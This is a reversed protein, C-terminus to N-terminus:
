RRYKNPVPGSPAPGAGRGSPPVVRVPAGAEPEDTPFGGAYDTLYDEGDAQGTIRNIQSAYSRRVNDYQTKGAAFKAAITKKMNQRSQPTLFPTNSFIRAANFGFSEAWSQAYKQVTAYEGERVVSDPDMAKAFAYILAQDDAPNTTNVDLGNAFSVAEAMKQTTKVIPLSDWGKARSDVRRAVAPPLGKDSATPASAVRDDAQGMERQVRLLRQYAETDGNALAEAAQVQLSRTEPRPATPAVAGRQPAGANREFGARRELESYPIPKEEGEMAVSFNPADTGYLKNVEELKKRAAKIQMDSPSVTLMVHQEFAGPDLGMAQAQASYLRAVHSAAEPTPASALAAEFNKLLVQQQTMRQNKGAQELQARRYEDQSRAQGSLREEQSAMRADQASLRGQQQKLRRARQFGRMLAGVAGMGGKAAIPLLALLPAFEKANFGGQQPSPVFPPTGGAGVDLPSAAMDPSLDFDDLAM